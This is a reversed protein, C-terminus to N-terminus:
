RCQAAAGAQVPDGRCVDHDGGVARREEVWVDADSQDGPALQHPQGPHEGSRDGQPHGQHAFVLPHARLAGEVEPQDAFDDLVFPEHFPGCSIASM